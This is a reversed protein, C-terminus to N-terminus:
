VIEMEQTNKLHMYTGKRTCLEHIYMRCEFLPNITIFATFGRICRQFPVFFISRMNSFRSKAFFFVRTATITAQFILVVCVVFILCEGNDSLPTHTNKEWRM